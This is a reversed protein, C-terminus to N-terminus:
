NITVSKAASAIGNTVVELTAPGIHITSPIDFTATTLTSGQAVGGTWNHTRCYVVAGASDTIRVLPYNTASQNDDGYYAGQTLGNFQTGGIKNNKVGHTLTTKV